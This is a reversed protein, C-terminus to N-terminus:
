EIEAIYAAAEEAASYGSTMAYTMASLIMEIFGVGIDGSLMIGRTNDGCAYLGPLPKGGRQVRTKEDITMGGIANEQFCGEYIAYYPGRELPVAKPMRAMMAAMFDDPDFPREPAPPTNRLKENHWTVIDALKNRAFGLKEALEELTDAKVVSGDRLENALDRELHVFSMQDDPDDSDRCFAYASDWANQDLISWGVRGPKDSLLDLEPMFPAGEKEIYDGYKGVLIASANAARNMMLVSYSYPHHIPGFIVARKNKYDIDAGIDECMLIGDGTCDAAAYIHVPNEEFDKYFCPQMKNMLEVNRSYTGAAMIVAKARIETEGGPDRGIAGVVRGNEEILKVARTNFLIEGGKRRFLNALLNTIYWGSDGPGTAPDSRLKSYEDRYTFVLGPGHHTKGFAFGKQLEGLDILWDTLEENAKMCRRLLDNNCRGETREEFQRIMDPRPDNLGAERHWKSYLVRMMHGFYASGGVEWNKEMCIVKLGMDQAKAAATIGSAGGGIVLLDCTKFVKEHPVAEEKPIDPNSIAHNHCNEACTGCEICEDPDIWYKHNRMHIAHVPCQLDCLHCCSCNKQDIIYAM